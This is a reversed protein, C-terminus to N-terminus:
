QGFSEKYDQYADWNEDDYANINIPLIEEYGLSENLKLLFVDENETYFLWERVGDGTFVTMLRAFGPEVVGADMLNEFNEMKNLEDENPMGSGNETVYKWSIIVLVKLRQM